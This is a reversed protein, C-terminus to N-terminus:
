IFSPNLSVDTSVQNFKIYAQKYKPQLIQFEGFIGNEFNQIKTAELLTMAFIFKEHVAEVYTENFTHVTRGRKLFAVFRIDDEAIEFFTGDIKKILWM